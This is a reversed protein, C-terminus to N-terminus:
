RRVKLFRQRDQLSFPQKGNNRDPPPQLVGEWRVLHQPCPTALEAHAHLQANRAEEVQRHRRRTRSGQEREQQVGSDRPGPSLCDELVKAMQM